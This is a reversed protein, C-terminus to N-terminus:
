LSTDGASVAEAREDPLFSGMLPNHRLMFLRKSLLSACQNGAVVLRVGAGM